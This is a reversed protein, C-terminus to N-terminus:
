AIDYNVYHNLYPFVKTPKNSSPVTLPYYAPFFRQHTEFKKAASIGVVRLLSSSAGHDMLGALFSLAANVGFGGSRGSRAASTSTRHSKSATSGSTSLSYLITRPARPLRAVPRRPKVVRHGPVRRCRPPRLENDLPDLMIAPWSLQYSSRRGRKKRARNETADSM